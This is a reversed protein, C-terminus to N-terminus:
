EVVVATGYALLESAGSMIMSTVFRTGVVANAGIGEAQQVMRQIAQERSEALMKTYDTIEGGVINRLGAMIDHGIHRARITNGRVLGLTQVIRKGEITDTTTVIM